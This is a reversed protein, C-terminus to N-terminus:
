RVSSSGRGVKSEFKKETNRVQPAAVEIKRLSTNVKLSEYGNWYGKGHKKEYYGRELFEEVEEELLEQMILRAGEKIMEDLVKKKEEWGIKRRGKAKERIEWIRKRIKGSPPIKKM